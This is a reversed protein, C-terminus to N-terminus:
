DGGEEEEVVVSGHVPLEGEVVFGVEGVGRREEGPVHRRLQAAAARGEDAALVPLAARRAESGARGEDAAVAARGRSQRRHRPLRRRGNDTPARFRRRRAGSGRRRGDSSGPM